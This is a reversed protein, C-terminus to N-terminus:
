LLLRSGHVGLPRQPLDHRGHREHRLGVVTRRRRRLPPPPLLIRAPLHRHFAAGHTSRGLRISPSVTAAEQKTRPKAPSPLCCSIRPSKICSEVADGVYVEQNSGLLKCPFPCRRLWGTSLAEGCERQRLAAPYSSVGLRRCRAEECGNVVGMFIAMTVVLTNCYM